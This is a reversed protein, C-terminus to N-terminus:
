KPNEFTISSEAGFRKYGTFDIEMRMRIAGTRFQLVDDAVTKLPFYYKGDIMRRDTRFRPFLNEQKRSLIQPVARGEMRLVNFDKQSIWVLGEFLRQGQLIQRPDIQMVWCEIGDITEEGKFKSQYLMLQERTFLFPQIDRIDQFDEATLKLRVLSELPKGVMKEFREGGPSFIIDRLERYEGTKRGSVEM